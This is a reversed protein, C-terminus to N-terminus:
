YGFCIIPIVSRSVLVDKVWEHNHLINKGKDCKRPILHLLRNPNLIPSLPM